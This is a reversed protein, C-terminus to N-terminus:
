TRQLWDPKSCFKYSLIDKKGNAYYNRYATVPDGSVKYEDPMAQPVSDYDLPYSSNCFYSFASPKIFPLNDIVQWSKHGVTKGYRYMYEKNLHRALERIFWYNNKSQRAWVACPHNKHTMKYPILDSQDPVLIHHTTCLLQSYELIMKVVHKDCHYQAALKPDTDLIFVNM